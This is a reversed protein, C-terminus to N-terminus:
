KVPRVSERVRLAALVSKLQHLEERIDQIQQQQNLFVVDDSQKITQTEANERQCINVRNVILQKRLWCWKLGSPLKTESITSGRLEEQRRLRIYRQVSHIFYIIFSCLTLGSVGLYLGAVGGIDALLKTLSRDDINFQLFPLLLAQVQAYHSYYVNASESYYDIEKDNIEKNSPEAIARWQYARFECTSECENACSRGIKWYQEECIAAHTGNCFNLSHDTRAHFYPVCSCANAVKQRCQFACSSLPEGRFCNAKTRQDSVSISMTFYLQVQQPEFSEHLVDRNFFELEVMEPDTSADASRIGSEGYIGYSVPSFPLQSGLSNWILIPDVFKARRKDADVSIDKRLLGVRRVRPPSLCLQYYEIRLSDPSNKIAAVCSVSGNQLLAAYDLGMKTDVDLHVRECIVKVLHWFLKEVKENEFTPFDSFIDLSDIRWFSCFYLWVSDLVAHSWMSEIAPNGEFIDDYSSDNSFIKNVFTEVLSLSNVIKMDRWVDWSHRTLENVLSFNTYNFPSRYARDILFSNDCPKQECLEIALQRFAIPSYPICITLSPPKILTEHQIHIDFDVNTDADLFDRFLPVIGVLTLSVFLVIGTLWVVFSPWHKPKAIGVVQFLIMEELFRLSSLSSVIRHPSCLPISEVPDAALLMEEPYYCLNEPAERVTVLCSVSSTLLTSFFM